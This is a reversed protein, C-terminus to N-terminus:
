MGAVWTLGQGALLRFPQARLCRADHGLGLYFVRGLGWPRVYASPQKEEGLRATALIQLGDPACDLVYLEDPVAFDTVGATIPHATDLIELCVEDLPPHRLFRSGLMEHYLHNEAFSAAASHLGFLGKGGRVYADLAEEEDAALRGGTTYVVVADFDLLDLSALASTDNTLILEVDADARLAALAEERAGPEDHYPGGVLVLARFSAM